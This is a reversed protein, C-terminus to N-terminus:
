IKIVRFGNEQIVDLFRETPLFLKPTIITETQQIVSSCFHISKKFNRGGKETNKDGTHRLLVTRPAYLRASRSATCNDERSKRYSKHGWINTFFLPFCIYFLFLLLHEPSPTVTPIFDNHSTHFEKTFTQRSTLNITQTKWDSVNKRTQPKPEIWSHFQLM